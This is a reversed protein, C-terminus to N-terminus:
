FARDQQRERRWSVIELYFLVVLTFQALATLTKEAVALHVIQGSAYFEALSAFLALLIGWVVVVKKLFRPEHPAMQPLSICVVSTVWYLLRVFASSFNTTGHASCEAGVPGYLYLWLCVCNLVVFLSLGRRSFGALRDKM